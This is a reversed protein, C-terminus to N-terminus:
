LVEYITVGDHRYVIRLGSGVMRDFKDLGGISQSAYAERELEGVYIYRVHYYRLLQNAQNPDATSYIIGVDTMRSLVQESYRQEAVHDPWGLVDPLGTYVSVRGFWSFSYPEAAELMVPSGDINENIWAIAEADGPYWAHIFAEGNLTPTYNVSYVPSQGQAWLQHDHIRALTGLTLFLSNSIILLTFLVAWVSRLPGRLHKWLRQAALAGGIAFCFWAQISFKFVSNMREYITNDLFDRVYVFELGLSICLAALLLLSIFRTRPDRQVILLFVGMAILTILLAKLSLLAAFILVALCLLLYGSVRRGSAGRGAKLLQGSAEARAALRRMWWRYLELLFFSITLFLWLDNITLYDTLKTGLSVLGLGNVYLEQYSAYFPLYFLYALGCLAAYIALAVLVSLAKARASWGRADVITRILLAAATLLAYVPMDWPNICALSGFIFAALAYLPLSSWKLRLGDGDHHLISEGSAMIAAVIGLMFITVPMDIVHPHLDAFLFSWFPFENITFPIIRSSRWYDFMPLALHKLAAGLWDKVQLLGDFNGILAAFYGGLLALSFRRSLSYVLSFAGTFTLAFLTPIALNFATVPAIGTLKIFAGILIYGFYYYNIYGGAYWPDLPPMYPSRLIANLFAMEMPKEGGLYINWLDPNLARVGVFLLFALTFLGEEILLLRWRRRLFATLERRQVYFLAAGSALMVGVVVITSLHSFAVLHLCALIWALYALLLMGLLKSFIYGRDSLGRLAAFLLPFALCGLLFIALWWFFIPFTNAFSHAPFQLGFPPSQQDQAIQPPTLLLSKHANFLPLSRAKLAWLALVAGCLAFGGLPLLYWRISKKM